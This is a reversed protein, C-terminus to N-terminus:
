AQLPEPRLSLIRTAQSVYDDPLNPHSMVIKLLQTPKELDVLTALLSAPSTPNLAIAVDVEFRSHLPIDFLDKLSISSLDARSAMQAAATSGGLRCRFNGFKVINAIIVPNRNKFSELMWSLYETHSEYVASILRIDSNPHSIVYKRDLENLGGGHWAEFLEDSSSQSHLSGFIQLSADTSMKVTKSEASDKGFTETVLNLFSHTTNM